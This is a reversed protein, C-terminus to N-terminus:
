WRYVRVQAHVVNEGTNSLWLGDAQQTAKLTLSVPAVQLGSAFAAASALLAACAAFRPLLRSIFRHMAHPRCNPASLLTRQGEGHRRLQRTRFEREPHRRLSSVVPHRGSRFLTTYPFLTSRPPRRIM